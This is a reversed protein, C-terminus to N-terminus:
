TGRAPGKALLRDLAAGTARSLEAESGGNDIVADALAVFDENRRQSALRRRADAPTWGRSRVLREVQAEEPAVVALVADCEREFAWDLLLAADVVVPGRHSEGRLGALRERIRRLIRPHVLGNLRELALPDAFVKAAVLRRNLRGDDLYVAPGYERNLAERVAPDFDTVEHGIHDADIVLAGLGALLRAVTSKGSGARGVLGIVFLGDGTPARRPRAPDPIAHSNTM